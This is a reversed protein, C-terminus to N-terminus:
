RDDAQQQKAQKYAKRRARWDLASGTTKDIFQKIVQFYMIGGHQILTNHDAGPIIQMEKAKAGCSSHLRQAQWLPILLDNQGHLIFTPKDFQEIKRNNNFAQEEKIGLAELDVGLTKALPLTEAFGSEIILGQIDEKNQLAVDIACASGLSRGMVFIDDSYQNTRFWERVATFSTNSDSLFSSLLPTGESWGYGRYEIVALNLGQRLYMPAINDHDELIEGNGHFYIISPANKDSTYIRCGTKSGDELVIDLDQAQDPPSTRNAKRPHFIIQLIQPNDILESTNPVSSERTAARSNYEYLTVLLLLSSLCLCLYLHQLRTKTHVKNQHMEHRM